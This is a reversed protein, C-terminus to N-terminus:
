SPPNYRLNLVKKKIPLLLPRSARHPSLCFIFFDLTLGGLVGWITFHIELLQVHAFPPPEITKDNFFYKEGGGRLSEIIKKDQCIM